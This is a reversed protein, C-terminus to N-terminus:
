DAARLDMDPLTAAYLWGDFFGGLDAGSVEEAVAIFDDTTASSYQYRAHYARLIDFFTDDGVRLRLAHLTLAGRYYVSLFLAGFRAPDLAIEGRPPGPPPFDANAIFGYVNGVVVALADPGKQRETWLWEAYTAFGENLWIDRWRAPSVSNGFWSHALEHAVIQDMGGLESVSDRSFLSLTQTEMAFPFNADAVVVGYAEFPYPGFLEGFYAIMDATPAFDSAAEDALAPPYYNRILLGDPGQEASSEFEGINVGVLYSALPDRAEWLYTTADGQDITDQLLGNAAVVYPEPVTIRFTYTAKDRPHDNVPFWSAAGDPESAVYVGSGYNIWGIGFPLGPFEVPVPTGSYTVGVTITEGTRLPAVLPVVILEHPRRDWDVAAGNLTVASVSFNEAFDLNFTRADETLVADMTVTGSIINADLDVALDLTYHTADYGGNGLLPFDPDGIGDAGSVGPGQAAAGSVMLLLAIVCLPISKQLM